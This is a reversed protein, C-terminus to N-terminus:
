HHTSNSLQGEWEALTRKLKRRVELSQDTSLASRLLDLVGEEFAYNGLTEAAESRVGPDSDYILANQLHPVLELSLTKGDFNTWVSARIKPDSNYTGIYVLDAIMEGTYADPVGRLAKHATMKEAISSAPSTLIQQAILAAEERDATLQLTEAPSLNTKRAPTAFDILRKELTLLRELIEHQAVSAEDRPDTRVVAQRTTPPTLATPSQERAQKELKQLRAEIREIAKPTPDIAPSALEPSRGWLSYTLGVSLSVSILVIPIASQKPIM